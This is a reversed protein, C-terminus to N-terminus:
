NAQELLQNLYALVEAEGAVQVAQLGATQAGQVNQANDDLFIVREPPTDIADCIYTFAATDPKRLGIRSSEFIYEFVSLQEGWATRWYHSHTHNTNTFAYLGYHAKLPPLLALVDVYPGTWIDNWGARWQDISLEVEFLNSLHDIYQEFNIAGIEHAEYAVDMSWKDFFVSADVNAQKAWNDFVKRFDIGFVVNGFDLLLANQKTSPMSLDTAINLNLENADRLTTGM